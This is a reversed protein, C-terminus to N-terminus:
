TWSSYFSTGRHTDGEQKPKAGLPSLPHADSHSHLTCPLSASKICSEIHNSHDIDRILLSMLDDIDLKVILTCSPSIVELIVMFIGHSRQTLGGQMNKFAQSIVLPVLFLKHKERPRRLDTASRSGGM